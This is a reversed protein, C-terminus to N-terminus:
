VTTGRIVVRSIAERVMQAAASIEVPGSTDLIILGGDLRLPGTTTPLRWEKLQDLHGPHRQRSRFRTEAIRPDCQCHVEILPSKLENLMAPATQHRWFSVLIAGPVASATRLLLHDAARSLRSRWELDGVGLTDYLSELFDDKDLLPLQLAAALGRGVTSKGSGALGTVVIYPRM